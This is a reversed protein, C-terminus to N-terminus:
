SDDEAALRSFIDAAYTPQKSFTTATGLDIRDLPSDVGENYIEVATELPSDGSTSVTTGMDLGDPGTVILEDASDASANFQDLAIYAGDKALAPAAIAAIIATAIVTRKM